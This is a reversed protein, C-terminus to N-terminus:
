GTHIHTAGQARAAGRRAGNMKCAIQGTKGETTFGAPCKVCDTEAAAGLLSFTDQPKAPRPPTLSAPLHAPPPLM